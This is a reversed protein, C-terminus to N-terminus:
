KKRDESFAAVTQKQKESFPVVGKVIERYISVTMDCINLNVAESLPLSALVGFIINTQRFADQFKKLLPLVGHATILLLLSLGSSTSHSVLQFDGTSM